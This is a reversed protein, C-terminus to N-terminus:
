FLVLDFILQLHRCSALCNGLKDRLIWYIRKRIYLYIIRFNLKISMAPHYLIQPTMRTIYKQGAIPTISNSAGFYAMQYKTPFESTDTLLTM